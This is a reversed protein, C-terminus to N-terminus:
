KGYKIPIEPVNKSYRKKRNDPINHEDVEASYLQRRGCCVDGVVSTVQGLKLSEDQRVVM